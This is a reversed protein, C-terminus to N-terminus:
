LRLLTHVPWRSLQGRGGLAELEALVGLEAVQAGGEEVLQAAAALTGGTALVDDIVAVRQGESVADVHMEVVGEGYELSYSVSRTRYPLKGAKRVPALPVALRHAVPAAILFGRADIGVVADVPASSYREVFHDIVRAFAEPCSLVPTIDRYIIGPEPFDPM